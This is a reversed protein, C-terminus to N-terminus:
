ERGSEASGAFPKYNNKLAAYNEIVPLLKLFITVKHKHVAPLQTIHVMTYETNKVFKNKTYRTYVLLVRAVPATYSPVTSVFVTDPIM